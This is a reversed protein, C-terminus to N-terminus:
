LLKRACMARRAIFSVCEITQVFVAQSLLVSDQNSIASLAVRVTVTPADKQPAVPGVQSALVYMINRTAIALFATTTVIVNLIPRSCAALIFDM